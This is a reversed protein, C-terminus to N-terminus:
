HYPFRRRRVPIYSESKHLLGSEEQSTELRSICRRYTEDAFAALKGYAESIRLYAQQVEPHDTLAASVTAYTAAARYEQVYLPLSALQRQILARAKLFQKVAEEFRSIEALALRHGSTHGPHHEPGFFDTDNLQSFDDDDLQSIEDGSADNEQVAGDGFSLFRCFKICNATLLGDM